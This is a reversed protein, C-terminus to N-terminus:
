SVKLVVVLPVVPDWFRTTTELVPDDTPKVAVVKGLPVHSETVGVLEVVGCTSETETLAPEM